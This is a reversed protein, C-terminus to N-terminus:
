NYYFYCNHQDNNKMNEELLAARNTRHQKPKQPIKIPSAEIPRRGMGRKPSNKQFFNGKLIREFVKMVPIPICIETFFGQRLLTGVSKARGFPQKQRLFEKEM